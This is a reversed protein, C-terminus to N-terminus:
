KRRALGLLVPIDEHGIQSPAVYAGHGSLILKDLIQGDSVQIPTDMFHDINQALQSPAGNAGHRSGINEEVM